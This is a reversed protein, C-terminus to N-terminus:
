VKVVLGNGDVEGVAYCVKASACAVKSLSGSAPAVKTPKGAKGHTVTVFASKATAGEGTFGVLLCETASPCAMGDGSFGSLKVTKGIAGTKPNLPFLEDAPSFGSTIVGGFAYCLKAQYCAIQQIYTKAPVLHSAGLHGNKLLQIALGSGSNHSILCLTSSPCAITGIGYGGPLSKSLQRGAGSLHIIVAAAKVPSGQFGVAYCSSASACAISGLAMIGNKPPTPTDTVKMAGTTVSLSAVTDDGLALCQSASPCAVAGLSDEHLNGAWLHVAGTAANIVASKGNLDDDSGVAVCAKSSACAVGQFTAGAVTASSIGPVAASASVMPASIIAM